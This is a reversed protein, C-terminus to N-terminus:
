TEWSASAVSPKDRISGNIENDDTCRRPEHRYPHNNRGGQIASRRWIDPREGHADASTEPGTDLWSKFNLLLAGTGVVAAYISVWVEPRWDSLAM